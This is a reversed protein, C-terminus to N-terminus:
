LSIPLNLDSTYNNVYIDARKKPIRNKSGTKINLPM